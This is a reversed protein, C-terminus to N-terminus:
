AVTGCRWRRSPYMTPRASLCTLTCWSASTCRRWCGEVAVCSCMLLEGYAPNSSDSIAGTQPLAMAATCHLMTVPLGASKAVEGTLRSGAGPTSPPCRSGMSQWSAAAPACSRPRCRRFNWRAQGCCWSRFEPVSFLSRRQPWPVAPPRASSSGQLPRASVAPRRRSTAGSRV